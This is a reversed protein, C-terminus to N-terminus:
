VPRIKDIIYTKPNQYANEQCTIYVDAIIDNIKLLDDSYDDRVTFDYNPISGMKRQVNTLLLKAEDLQKLLKRILTSQEPQLGYTAGNNVGTVYEDEYYDLASAIYENLIPSKYNKKIKM